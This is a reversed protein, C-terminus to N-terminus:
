TTVGDHVINRRSVHAECFSIPGRRCTHKCVEVDWMDEEDQVTTDRTESVNPRKPTRDNGSSSPPDGSTRSYTRKRTAPM